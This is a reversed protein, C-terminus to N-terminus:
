HVVSSGDTCGYWVVAGYESIIFWAGVDRLMVLLVKENHCLEELVTRLHMVTIM